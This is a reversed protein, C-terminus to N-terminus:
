DAARPPIVSAAQSPAQGGAFLKTAPNLAAEVSEVVRVVDLYTLHAHIPLSLVTDSLSESAPFDGEHHGLSRLAPQLHLPVPYHIGCEIHNALLAQRIADRRPSRIVFLHYCSEYGDPEVPLEVDCGDLLERYASAVERRRRNWADLRKLKALLVAAQITDLRANYGCDEHAYHSLRGHNRLKLVREAIEEDNTAIAGAEGWAGLNKGPYFSFGGALGISGAPQWGSPGRVRAGHAQCADEIIPIGHAAAIESIENMPAPLGFLHVPIIARPGHLSHWRGADLYRRLAAPNMNGTKRDVDVFVPRAGAQIIAEVTAIFTMPSTIVEDGAGAGVAILALRLADTGSGVGIVRRVGLYDAFEHEFEAVQPGDIYATNSHIRSFENEVDRMIEGNQESLDIFKIM